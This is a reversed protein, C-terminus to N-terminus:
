RCRTRVACSRPPAFPEADLRVKFDLYSSAGGRKEIAIERLVRRLSFLYTTVPGAQDGVAMSELMHEM